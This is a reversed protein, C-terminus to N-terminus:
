NQKTFSTHDPWTHQHMGPIGASVRDWTVFCVFYELPIAAIQETLCFFSKTPAASASTVITVISITVQQELQIGPLFLRLNQGRVESPGTWWPWLQITSCLPEAGLSGPLKCQGGHEDRYAGLGRFLAMWM